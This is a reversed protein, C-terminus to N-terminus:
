NRIAMMYELVEGLDESVFPAADPLRARVGYSSTLRGRAAPRNEDM